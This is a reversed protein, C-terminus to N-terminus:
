LLLLCDECHTTLEFTPLYVNDRTYLYHIKHLVLNYIAHKTNCYISTILGNKVRLIAYLKVTCAEIYDLQRRNCFCSRRVGSKPNERFNGISLMVISLDRIDIKM